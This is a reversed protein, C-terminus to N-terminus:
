TNIIIRIVDLQISIKNSSMSIAILASSFSSVGAFNYLTDVELDISDVPAVM